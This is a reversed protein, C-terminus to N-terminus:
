GFDVGDIRDTIPGSEPQSPAALGFVSPPPLQTKFKDIRLKGDGYLGATKEPAHRLLCVRHTVTGAKLKRAL